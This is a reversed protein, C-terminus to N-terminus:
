SFQQQTRLGLDSGVQVDLREHPTGPHSGRVPAAGLSDLAVAVRIYADSPSIGTEPDFGIWGLDPVFAEAWVHSSGGAADGDAGVLYGTVFRAPIELSRACAIFVHALDERNGSKAALAKAAPSAEAAPDCKMRENVAAMLKHLRDLTEGEGAHGRAFMRLPADSQTAPTERLYLGVPFRELTGKVVGHTEHTEVEGTVTISLDDLARVFSLTHVINGFADEANQLQVDHDLDIRWNRVRQGETSRPTLRLVQIVASAPNEYIYSLRHQIRIRM